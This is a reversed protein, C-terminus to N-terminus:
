VLRLYADTLGVDHTIYHTDCDTAYTTKDAMTKCCTSLVLAAYASPSVIFLICLLPILFLLDNSAIVKNFHRTSANFRVCLPFSGHNFVRVVTAGAMDTHMDGHVHHEAAAVAKLPWIPEKGSRCGSRRRARAHGGDDTGEM